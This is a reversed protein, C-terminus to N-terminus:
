LNRAYSGAAATNEVLSVHASAALPASVALLAGAGLAVSASIITKKNM